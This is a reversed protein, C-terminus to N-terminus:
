CHVFVYSHINCLSEFIGITLVCGPEMKRLVCHSYYPYFALQSQLYSTQFFNKRVMKFKIFSIDLILDYAYHVVPLFSYDFPPQSGYWMFTFDKIQETKGAAHSSGRSCQWKPEAGRIIFSTRNTRPTIGAVYQVIETGESPM